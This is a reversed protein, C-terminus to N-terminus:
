ISKKVTLSNLKSNCQLDSLCDTHLEFIISFNIDFIYVIIHNPVLIWSQGYLCIRM